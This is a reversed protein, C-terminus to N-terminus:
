CGERPLPLVLIKMGCVVPATGRAAWWACLAPTAPQTSWCYCPLLQLEGGTGCYGLPARGRARGGQRTFGCTLRKVWLAAQLIRSGGAQQLNQLRAGFATNLCHFFSVALLLSPLPNKMWICVCMWIWVLCPLCSYQTIKDHLVRTLKFFSM